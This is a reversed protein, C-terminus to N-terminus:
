ILNVIHYGCCPDLLDEQNLLIEEESMLLEEYYMQNEM